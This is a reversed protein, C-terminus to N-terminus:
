GIDVVEVEDLEKEVNINTQAPKGEKHETVFQMFWKDGKLAKEWAIQSLLEARTAKDIENGDNDVIPIEEDALRGIANKISFIQAPTKRGVAAKNGEVFQGKDNRGEM